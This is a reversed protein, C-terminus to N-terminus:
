QPEKGTSSSPQRRSGGAQTKPRRADETGHGIAGEAQPWSDGLIAIAREIPIHIRGAQPNVWGYSNLEQEESVRFKNLDAIPDPQLQPKPFTLAPDGGVEKLQEDSTTIPNAARHPSFESRGWNMFLGFLVLQVLVLGSCLIILFAIVSRHDLDTADFEVEPNVARDHILESM